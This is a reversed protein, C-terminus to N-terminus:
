LVPVYVGPNVLRMYKTVINLKSESVVLTDGDQILFEAVKEQKAHRHLDLVHTEGLGDGIPRILLVQTQRASEQFGEAVQIAQLATLPGNLTYEGPKGVRGGVFFHPKEFQTIEVTIEPHNLRQAAKETIAETAQHLDLGSLKVEGMGPLVIFGDPQVSVTADLEPTLHYSIKLVDNARLHYRPTSLLERNQCLAPALCLALCLFSVLNRLQRIM